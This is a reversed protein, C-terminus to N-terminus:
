GAVIKIKYTCGTKPFNSCGWFPDWQEGPKPTRKMMGAGCWECKLNQIPLESTIGISKYVHTPTALEQVRDEARAAQVLEWLRANDVLEIGNEYAFREAPGTFGSSSVLIAGDAKYAQQAGLLRQVKDVGVDEG